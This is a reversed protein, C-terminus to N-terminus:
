SRSSPRQLPWSRARRAPGHKPGHSRSCSRRSLPLKSSRGNGRAISLMDRARFAKGLRIREGVVESWVHAAWFILMSGLLSATMTRTGTGSEYAVGIVSAALFSGYVAAGFRVDRDLVPPLDVSARPAPSYSAPESSTRDLLDVTLAVARADQAVASTVRLDEAKRELLKEGAISVVLESIGTVLAFAAILGLVALAGAGPAAFIVIGFIIAVLGTLIMSATDRGDLPLRFSAGVFLIGFAVAYAGIVYLLTLASIGPWAFVLVGVTIGLLGRLILWAREEKGQATFATGFEVIGTALTYAGFLITLAYVSIGPWALIMVGFVVSALGHLGLVWRMKTVQTRSIKAARDLM